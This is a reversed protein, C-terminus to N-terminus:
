KRAGNISRFIHLTSIRWETAVGEYRKRRANFLANENIVEFHCSGGEETSDNSLRTGKVDITGPPQIGSYVITVNLGSM